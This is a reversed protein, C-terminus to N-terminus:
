GDISCGVMQPEAELTVGFADRVGDRIERALTLLERTTGGGRNVLALAHKRSIGISGHGHGKEFGAREILWAAAVKTKGRDSPFRPARTGEGLKSTVRADLAALADADLTPNM